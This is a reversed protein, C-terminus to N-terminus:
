KGQSGLFSKREKLENKISEYVQMASVYRSSVEDYSPAASPYKELYEYRQLFDSVSPSIYNLPCTNYEGTYQSFLVSDGSEDSMDCNLEERRECGNCALLGFSGVRSLYAGKIGEIEIETLTSM